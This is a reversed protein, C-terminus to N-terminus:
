GSNQQQRQAYTAIVEATRFNEITVDEPPVSINLETELFGVLRMVALSDLLGSVLLDTDAKLSSDDDDRVLLTRVFALVQDASVAASCM